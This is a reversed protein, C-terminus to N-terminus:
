FHRGRGHTTVRATESRMPTTTISDQSSWLATAFSRLRNSFAPTSSILVQSKRLGTIWSSAMPSMFLRSGALRRPLSDAAAAAATSGFRVPVMSELLPLAIAMGIGKLFTRRPLTERSIMANDGRNGAAGCRSRRVTSLEWSWAPFVTADEAVEHRYQRGDALGLRLGRGRAYTLMKDAICNAFADKQSMLIAKLEAPSKFTRGDPLEASADIDFQGDKTRWMGIADFNELAFGLPDM